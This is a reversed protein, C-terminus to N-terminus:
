AAKWVICRRNRLNRRYLGSAKLRQPTKRALESVRASATQHSLGTLTEIEECTAGLSGRHRVANLVKIQTQSLGFDDKLSSVSAFLGPTNIKNM